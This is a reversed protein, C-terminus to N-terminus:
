RSMEMLQQHAQQRQVRERKRVDELPEPLLEDLIRRIINTVTTQGLAEVEVAEHPRGDGYRRDKKVIIPLGHEEVQEGTLAVREWEIEREAHRELVRRTNREILDGALDLDGVYLVPRENGSLRPAVETVLFGGAQGNTPAVPCLYEPGLTRNLVGGFTRSECLILPPDLQWPNIRASWLSDTLYEAVSDAYEWDHVSRTEDVIWSWPVVGADRLRKTADIVDQDPRRAGTAQKSVIGLQVLEYFIFRNSTPLAGDREHQELVSLCARQLRGAKTTESSLGSM